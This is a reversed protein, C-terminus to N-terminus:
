GREIFEYAGAMEVVRDVREPASRLVVTKGDAAARLLVAICSSDFFTVDLMDVIVRQADVLRLSRAIVDRVSLDFDGALVVVPPNSDEISVDAPM